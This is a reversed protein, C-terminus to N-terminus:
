CKQDLKSRGNGRSSQWFRFFYATTQFFKLSQAIWIQRFWPKIEEGIELSFVIVKQLIQAIKELFYPPTVLSLILVLIQCIRNWGFSEQDVEQLFLKTGAKELKTAIPRKLFVKVQIKLNPQKKKTGHRYKQFFSNFKRICFKIRFRNSGIQFILFSFCFFSARGKRISGKWKLVM